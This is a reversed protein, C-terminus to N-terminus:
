SKSVEGPPSKLSYANFQGDEDEDEESSEQKSNEVPVSTPIPVPVSFPVPVPVPAAVPIPVTVPDPDFDSTTPKQFELIDTDWLIWGQHSSTQPIDHTVSNRWPPVGTNARLYNGYRTRLKVQMGERIPEWEVSSDMRRPRTQLVKKGTVGFMFPMNSATLYKGFISQFRLFNSNEIFEVAWRTNKITGNRDQCVIEENDDALLYKDHHSRFRVVKAKKFLDMASQNFSDM